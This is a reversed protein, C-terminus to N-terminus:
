FHLKVKAVMNRLARDPTTERDCARRWANSNEKPQPRLSRPTVEVERGEWCYVLRGADDTKKVSMDAVINPLQQEQLQKRAAANQKRNMRAHEGRMANHLLGDRVRMFDRGYGHAKRVTTRLWTGNEVFTFDGEGSQLLIGHYVQNYPPNQLAM